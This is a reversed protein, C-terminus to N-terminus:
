NFINGSDTIWFSLISNAKPQLAIDKIGVWYEPMEVLDSSDDPLGAVRISAPDCCTVGFALGGEYLRQM